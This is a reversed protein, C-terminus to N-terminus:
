SASTSDALVGPLGLQTLHKCKRRTRWAPCSCAWYRKTAHQSVIYIRNSSESRIETRNIWQDNPM